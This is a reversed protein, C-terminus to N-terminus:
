QGLNGLKNQVDGKLEEAKQQAMAKIEAQAKEILSRADESNQDLNSLIYKATQIAEDFKESNIFGNAESVLFQIQSEVSDMAKASEIAESSNASKAQQACGVLGLSLALCAVTLVAISKRM